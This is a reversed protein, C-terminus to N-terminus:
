APSSVGKIINALIQPEEIGRAVDALSVIGVCKKSKDVVLLRRLKKSGMLNALKKADDDPSVCVLDGSMVDQVRTQKPDKGEALGRLVLDRDTLVGRIEGTSRDTVPVAGCDHQKMCQAVEFLSNDTFVTSPNKTMLEQAKKYSTTQTGSSM